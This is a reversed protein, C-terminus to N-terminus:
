PRAKWTTPEVRSAHLREPLGHRWKRWPRLARRPTLLLVLLLVLCCAVYAVGFLAYWIARATWALAHGATAPLRRTM